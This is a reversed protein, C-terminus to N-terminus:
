KAVDTDHIRSWGIMKGYSRRISGCCLVYVCVYIDDSGVGDKLKRNRLLSSFFPKFWECKKVRRSKNLVYNYQNILNHPKKPKKKPKCLLSRNYQSPNWNLKYPKVPLKEM